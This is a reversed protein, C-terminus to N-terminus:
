RHLGVYLLRGLLDFDFLCVLKWYVLDGTNLPWYLISSDLEARMFKASILSYGQSKLSDGPNCFPYAPAQFCDIKM